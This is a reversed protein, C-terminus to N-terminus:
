NPRSHYEAFNAISRNILVARNNHMLDKLILINAKPFYKKALSAVQTSIEPTIEIIMFGSDSLKDVAEKFLKSIVKLGNSGGDLAIRPEALVEQSLDCLQATPIYPPNSLIIDVKDLINELLDGQNLLIRNGLSYKKVNEDAVCLAEKSIDSAYVLSNPINIAIAIAIAGSGTGIDAIKLNKNELNNAINIATEILLETEQRPILVGEKVGIEIGYFERQGTIYSLPYGKLRKETVAYISKKQIEQLNKNLDQFITERDIKLIYRVLVEAELDFDLIGFKELQKSIEYLIEKIKM